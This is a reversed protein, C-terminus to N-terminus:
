GSSKTALLRAVETSLQDIDHDVVRWVVTGDVGFYQHTVINRMGKIQTWPVSPALAKCEESLQGVAEGIVAINYLVADLVVRSSRDGAAHSRLAQIADFIHELRWRDKEDIM